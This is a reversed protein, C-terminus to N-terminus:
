CIGLTRNGDNKFTLDRFLLAADMASFFLGQKMLVLSNGYWSAEFSYLSIMQQVLSTDFPDCLSM